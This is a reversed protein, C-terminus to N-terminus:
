LLIPPLQSLFTKSMTHHPDPDWSRFDEGDKFLIQTLVLVVIQWKVSDVSAMTGNGIIRCWDLIGM